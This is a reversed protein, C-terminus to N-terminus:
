SLVYKRTNRGIIQPSNELMTGQECGVLSILTLISAKFKLHDNLNM